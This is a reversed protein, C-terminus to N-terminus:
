ESNLEGLMGIKFVINSPQQKIPLGLNKCTKIVDVGMAEPCSNYVLNFQKAYGECELRLQKNVTGQWYLVCRAQRESWNPHKELMKNVHHGLNFIVIVFFHDKHLNFYREILPAQPPCGQKKNYNPCGNPHDPYPLKCWDRARYDVVLNSSTNLIM